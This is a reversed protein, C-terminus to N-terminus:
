LLLWLGAALCSCSLQLSLHHKADHDALWKASLACCCEFEAHEVVSRMRMMMARRESRAPRQSPLVAPVLKPPLTPRPQAARMWRCVDVESMACVLVHVTICDSTAQCQTLSGLDHPLPLILCYPPSLATHPSLHVSRITRPFPESM